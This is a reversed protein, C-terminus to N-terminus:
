ISCSVIFPAANNKLQIRIIKQLRTEL